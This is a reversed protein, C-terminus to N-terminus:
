AKYSNNGTGTPEAPCEEEKVDDGKYFKCFIFSGVLDDLEHCFVGGVWGDDFHM